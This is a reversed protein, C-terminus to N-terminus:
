KSLYERVDDVKVGVSDVADKLQKETCKLENCWYTVEWEQNVNIKKPDEPQRKKLNDAM